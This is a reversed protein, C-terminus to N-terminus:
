RASPTPDLQEVLLLVEKKLQNSLVVVEYQRVPMIALSDRIREKDFENLGEINGVEFVALQTLNKEFDSLGQLEKIEEIEPVSPAVLEQDAKAQLAMYHFMARVVTVKRYCAGSSFRLINNMM